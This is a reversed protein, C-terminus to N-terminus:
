HISVIVISFRTHREAAATARIGRAPAAARDVTTIAHRGRRM